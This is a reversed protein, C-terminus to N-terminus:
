YRNGKGNSKATEEQKFGFIMIPAMSLPGPGACYVSGPQVPVVPTSTRMRAGGDYVIRGITWAITVTRLGPGPRYPIGDPWYRSPVEDPLDYVIRNFGFSIEPLPWCGPGPLYPEGSGVLVFSRAAGAYV